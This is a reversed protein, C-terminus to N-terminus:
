LGRLNERTFVRDVDERVATSESTALPRGAATLVVRGDRISRLQTLANRARETVVEPPNEDYLRRRALDCSISRLIEPIVELPLRYRGSIMTDIEANADTLAATITSGDGTTELSAIEDM